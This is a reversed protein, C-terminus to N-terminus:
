GKIEKKFLVYIRACMEPFLWSLVKDFFSMVPVGYDGFTNIGGMGLFFAGNIKISTAKAEIGEDLIEKSSLRTTVLRNRGIRPRKENVCEVLVYGGNRVIRLMEKITSLAYTKSETQNLLRIAYAFDYTNSEYPLKASEGTELQVHSGYKTLKSRLEDLMNSSADIGDIKYGCNLCEILLRGTGCGVELITSDKDVYSLAKMLISLEINHIEQGALTQFRLEDYSEAQKNTYATRVNNEEQM